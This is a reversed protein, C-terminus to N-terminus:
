KQKQGSWLFGLNNLADDPAINLLQKSEKAELAILKIEPIKIFGRDKAPLLKLWARGVLASKKIPGFYRSDESVSRNDGLVFYQDSALTVDAEGSTKFSIEPEELRFVTDDKIIYVNQHWIKVQEGPLGIIRKIYVSSPADPAKFVVVEGRQITSTHITVKEIWLYNADHFNPDMSSGRVVFPEAILLRFLLALVLLFIFGSGFFSFCNKIKEWFAM